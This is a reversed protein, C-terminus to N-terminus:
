AIRLSQQLPRMSRAQKAGGHLSNERRLSLSAARLCEPCRLVHVSDWAQNSPLLLLDLLAGLYVGPCLAQEQGDAVFCGGEAM